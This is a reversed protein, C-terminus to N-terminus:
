TWTSKRIKDSGGKDCNVRAAAITDLLFWWIWNATETVGAPDVEGLVTPSVLM